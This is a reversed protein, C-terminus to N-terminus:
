TLGGMPRMRPRTAMNTVLTLREAARTVATYLWRQADERFSDSEDFVAVSEWQSGQSKHCTIAEGHSFEDSRERQWYLLEDERGEFFLPHVRVLQPNSGAGADIPDVSLEISPERSHVERARWLGGNLLGRSHNNRLCILKDGPVVESPRGRMRRIQRNLDHRTRNLGCLVQGADLVRRWDLASKVTVTCRPDSSYVPARGDRIAMSLRIIPSEAAQRHIEDLLFDPTGSTFFGAGDVPPLQAPDGLVLVKRGYSLLDSGLDEGVMSCEDLVVLDADKVPGDPDLEFRFIGRDRHVKYILSHVTSAGVCGKRQMVLAAKGTFACYFVTELHEAFYRALTTKGTGAYGGLYFVQGAHPDRHWKAVAKLAEDQQRSPTM